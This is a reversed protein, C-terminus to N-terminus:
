HTTGAQGELIKRAFVAVDKGLQILSSASSLTSVSPVFINRKKVYRVIRVLGDGADEFRCTNYFHDELEIGDMVEPHEELMGM